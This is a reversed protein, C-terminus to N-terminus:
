IQPPLLLVKSSSFFSPRSMLGQLIYRTTRDPSTLALALGLKTAIKTLSAMKRSDTSPDLKLSYRALELLWNCTQSPIGSLVLSRLVHTGFEYRCISSLHLQQFKLVLYQFKSTTISTFNTKHSLLFKPTLISPATILQLLVLKLLIMHNSM